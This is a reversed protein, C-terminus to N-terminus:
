DKGALVAQVQEICHDIDHTEFHQPINWNMRWGQMSRLLIQLMQRREKVVARLRNCENRSIQEQEVAAARSERLMEFEAEVARIAEMAASM